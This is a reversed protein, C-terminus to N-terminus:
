GRKYNQSFLVAGILFALVTFLVLIIINSSIDAGPNDMLKHLTDVIWYQPLIKALNQLYEPALDLPFYAGGLIAGLTNYSMIFTTNGIRSKIVLSVDIVFCIIFFSFLMYLLFLKYVPFGIDKNMLGIFGCYILAELMLLSFGFISNGAMYQVAKVPTGAIRNYVGTRRDDVITISVVMALSFVIM